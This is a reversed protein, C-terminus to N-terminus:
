TQARCFSRGVVHTDEVLDDVVIGDLLIGWLDVSPTYEHEGAGHTVMMRVHRRVIASSCLSTETAHQEAHVRADDTTDQGHSGEFLLIDRLARQIKCVFSVFIYASVTEGFDGTNCEGVELGVDNGGKM